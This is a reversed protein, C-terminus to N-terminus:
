KILLKVSIQLNENFQSWYADYSNIKNDGIVTSLLVIDKLESFPYHYTFWDILKQVNEDDRTIRADVHQDLSHLSIRCFNEIEECLANMAHMGYVWKCLVSNQTFEGEVLYEVKCDENIKYPNAYNDYWVM